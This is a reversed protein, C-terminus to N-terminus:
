AREGRKGARHLVTWVTRPDLGVTKAIDANSLKREDRLYLCLHESFSHSKDAFLAVPIAHETTSYQLKAKQKEHSHALTKHVVSPARGLLAAIEDDTRGKEELYRVLTEFPTLASNFATAPIREEEHRIAAALEEASFHYTDQLEQALTRFLELMRKKGPDM